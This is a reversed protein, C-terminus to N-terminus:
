EEVGISTAHFPRESFIFRIFEVAMCLFSIPYTITFIWMPVFYTRVDYDGRQINTIVLEAGKIFEFFEDETITGDADEDIAVELREDAIRHEFGGRCLLAQREEFDGFEGFHQCRTTAAVVTQEDAPRVAYQGSEGSM